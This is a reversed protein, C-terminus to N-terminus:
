AVRRRLRGWFWPAVFTGLLVFAWLRGRVVNYDALLERWSLGSVLRGLGFEFALTVFLWLAGVGLLAKSGVSPQSRVFVWAVAFVVVLGTLCALQRARDEGLRPQLVLVRAMGNAFMVVLLALWAVAASIGLRMADGSSRGLCCPDVSCRPYAAFRHGRGFNVTAPMLRCTWEQLWAASLKTLKMRKNPPAAAPKVQATLLGSPM